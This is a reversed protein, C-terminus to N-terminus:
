KGCRITLQAEDAMDYSRAQKPLSVGRDACNSHNENWVTRYCPPRHGPILVAHSFSLEQCYIKAKLSCSSYVSLLHARGGVEDKYLAELLGAANTYIGVVM